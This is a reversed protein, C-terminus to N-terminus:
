QEIDSSEVGELDLKESQSELDQLAQVHKDYEAQTLYGLRLNLDLLRIDYKLNEYAKNLSM